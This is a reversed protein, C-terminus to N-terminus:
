APSTTSMIKGHLDIIQTKLREMDADNSILEGSSKIRKQSSTQANILLEADERSCGDREILREVRKERDCEVTAVLDFLTQMGNEVLLPVVVVRYPADTDSELWRLIEQRVHPHVIDTLTKMLGPDRLMHERLLRRKLAGDDDFFREPLAKRLPDLLVGNEGTAERSIEDACLVPVGLGRWIEMATTKGGAVGGTLAVRKM